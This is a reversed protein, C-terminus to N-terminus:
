ACNQSACGLLRYSGEFVESLRLVSDGSTFMARGEAEQSVDGFGAETMDRLERELSRGGRKESDSGTPYIEESGARERTKLGDDEMSWKM